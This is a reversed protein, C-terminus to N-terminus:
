EVAKQNERDLAQYNFMEFQKTDALADNNENTQFNYIKFSKIYTNFSYKLKMLLDKLRM